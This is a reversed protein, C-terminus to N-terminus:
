FLLGLELEAQVLRQDIRDAMAVVTIWELGQPHPPDDCGTPHDPLYLILPGAQGTLGPAMAQWVQEFRHRAPTQKQDVVAEVVNAPAPAAIAELQGSSTYSVSRLSWSCSM